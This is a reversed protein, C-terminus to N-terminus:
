KYDAYAIVRVSPVFSSTSAHRIHKDVFRKLLSRSRADAFQYENSAVDSSADMKDASIVVAANMEELSLQDKQMTKNFIPVSTAITNATKNVQYNQFGVFEPEM